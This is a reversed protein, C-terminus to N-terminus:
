EVVDRVEEVFEVAVESQAAALRQLEAFEDTRMVLDGAKGLTFGEKGVFVRMHVHGGLTKHRIRIM